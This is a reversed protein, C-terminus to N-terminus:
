ALSYVRCLARALANYFILPLSRPLSPSLSHALSLSFSRPPPLFINRPFSRSLLHTDLPSETPDKTLASERLRDTSEGLTLSLASVLAASPLLFLSHTDAFPKTV